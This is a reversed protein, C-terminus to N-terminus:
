NFGRTASEAAIDHLMKRETLAAAAELTREMLVSQETFRFTEGTLTYLNVRNAILANTEANLAEVAALRANTARWHQQTAIDSVSAWDGTGTVLNRIEDVTIHSVLGLADLVGLMGGLMRNVTPLTTVGLETITVNLENMTKQMKFATTESITNFAADTAGVANEMEELADTFKGAQAGGLALVAQLGEVSGILRRLQEMNGGTAM